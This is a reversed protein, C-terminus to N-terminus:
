SSVPGSSTRLSRQESPCLTCVAPVFTRIQAGRAHVVISSSLSSSSSGIVCASCPEASFFCTQTYSIGTHEHAHAWVSHACGDTPM